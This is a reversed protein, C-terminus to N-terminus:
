VQEGPYKEGFIQMFAWVMFGFIGILLIGMIMVIFGTLAMGFWSGNTLTNFGQTAEPGHQVLTTTTEEAMVSPASGLVFGVVGSIATMIWNIM